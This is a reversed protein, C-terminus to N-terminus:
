NIGKPLPPPPPTTMHETETPNPMCFCNQAGSLDQADLKYLGIHTGLIPGVVEMFLM